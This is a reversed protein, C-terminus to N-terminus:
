ATQAAWESLVEAQGLVTRTASEQKNPPYGHRRLVRKVLLHGAQIAAGVLAAAMSKGQSWSLQPTNHTLGGLDDRARCGNRNAHARDGGDGSRSRTRDRVPESM